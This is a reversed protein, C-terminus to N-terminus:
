VKTNRWKHMEIVRKTPQLQYQYFPIKNEEMIGLVRQVAHPPVGTKQYQEIHPIARELKYAVYELAEAPSIKRHTSILRLAANFGLAALEQKITLENDTM